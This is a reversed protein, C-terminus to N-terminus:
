STVPSRESAWPAAPLESTDLATVYAEMTPWRAPWAPALLVVLVRRTRGDHERRRMEPARALEPGETGAAIRCSPWRGSDADGVRM